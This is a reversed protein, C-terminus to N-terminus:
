APPPANEGILNTTSHGPLLEVVHIRGGHQVVTEAEICQSGYESGNVHVQPRIEALFDIPTPEDFIFVFNVAPHCAMMAARQQQHNVPRNPGKNRHVSRDSNVGVMLVDGQRGANEIIADHGPHLVDFTGNITVITHGSSHLDRAVKGVSQRSIIKGTPPGLIFDAAQDMNAAVYDPDLKRAATLRRRGQGTLVLVARCGANRALAVDTETDGIVVSRSRTVGHDSVAADIMGTRPKRCSCGEDPLHPCFYVAQVGVGERRLVAVLHDNYRQMEAQTFYRRGIGSQNTVIFLPHSDLRKLGQVVGPLLKFDTIRHTYGVDRTLTGDRDLFVAEPNM